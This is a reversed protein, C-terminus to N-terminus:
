VGFSVSYDGNYPAFYRLNKSVLGCSGWFVAENLSGGEGGGEFFCCRHDKKISGGFGIFWEIIATELEDDKKKDM